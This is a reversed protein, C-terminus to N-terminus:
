NHKNFSWGQPYLARHQHRAVPPVVDPNNSVTMTDTDLTSKEIVEPEHLTNNNETLSTHSKPIDEISLIVTEDDESVNDDSRSGTDDTAVTFDTAMIQFCWFM